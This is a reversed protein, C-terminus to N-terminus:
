KSPLIMYAEVNIQNEKTTGVRNIKKYALM